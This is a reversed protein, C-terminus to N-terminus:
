IKRNQFLISAALERVNNLILGTDEAIEEFNDKVRAIMHKAIGIAKNYKAKKCIEEGIKSMEKVGEPNEKLYRTREAM